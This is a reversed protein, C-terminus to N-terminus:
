PQIMANYGDNLLKQRWRNAEDRSYFPGIRVHILNDGSDRRASVAYGHRRLAGVLVNADEEHSLTAIQVMFQTAAPAAAQRASSVVAPQPASTEVPLAPRVQPQPSSSAAQNVPQQTAAAPQPQSPQSVDVPAADQAPLPTSAKPAASPKALSGNATIPPQEGDSPLQGPAIAVQVGRHGVAYGLGFCLGCVLVLGIFLFLLTGAGLTLEADRRPKAQELEQDDFVGNM